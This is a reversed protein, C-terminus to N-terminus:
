LVCPLVRISCFRRSVPEFPPRTIGPFLPWGQDLMLWSFDWGSGTWWYPCPRSVSLRPPLLLLLSVSLWLQRARSKPPPLRPTSGVSSSPSCFYLLWPQPPHSSGKRTTPNQTETEEEPIYPNVLEAFTPVLSSACCPPIKSQKIKSQAVQTQKGTDMHARSRSWLWFHTRRVSGPSLVSCLALLGSCLVLLWRDAEETSSNLGNGSM